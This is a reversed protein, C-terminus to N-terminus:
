ADDEPLLGLEKLDELMGLVDADSLEGEKRAAITLPLTQNCLILRLKERADALRRLPVVKHSNAAVVGAKAARMRKKNAQLISAEFMSLMRATHIAPDLGAGKFELILEEDSASFVDETMMAALGMISRDTSKNSGTM